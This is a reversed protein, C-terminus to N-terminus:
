ASRAAAAARASSCGARPVIRCEKDVSSFEYQLPMPWHTTSVRVSRCSGGFTCQQMAAGLSQRIQALVSATEQQLRRTGLVCDSQNRWGRSCTDAHRHCQPAIRVPLRSVCCAMLEIEVWHRPTLSCQVPQCSLLENGESDFRRINCNSKDAPLAVAARMVLPPQHAPQLPCRAQRGPM